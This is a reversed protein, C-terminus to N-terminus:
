NHVFTYITYVVKNKGVLDTYNSDCLHTPSCPLPCTLMFYKSKNAWQPNIWLLQIHDSVLEDTSLIFPNCLNHSIFQLSNVKNWGTSIKINIWVYEFFRGSNEIAQKKNHAVLRSEICYLIQLKVDLTLWALNQKFKKKTWKFTYLYESNLHIRNGEIRLM